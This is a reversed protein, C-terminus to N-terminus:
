EEEQPWPFLVLPSTVLDLMLARLSLGNAQFNQTLEKLLAEDREEPTRWLMHRMSQRVFCEQVEPLAILKAQLEAADQVDSNTSSHTIGGSTDVPEGDLEEHYLGNADYGEFPLGLPDILEHCAGCAPDERHQRLRERMPQDSVVDPIAQINMPPAPLHDCLMLRERIVVGREIPGTTRWGSHTWQFVPHTLLGPYEGVYYTKM